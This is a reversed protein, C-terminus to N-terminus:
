RRCTPAYMCWSAKHKQTEASRRKEEQVQGCHVGRCQVGGESSRTGSRSILGGCQTSPESFGEIHLTLVPLRVNSRFLGCM